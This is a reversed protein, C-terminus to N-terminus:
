KNKMLEMLQEIKENQQQIIKKLENIQLQQEYNAKYNYTVMEDTLIANNERLAEPLSSPDLEMLGKDTKDDFSGPLKAIPPFLIIEDTVMRDTFAAAGQNFLDDYYVDNWAQGNAGLNGGKHSGPLFNGNEMFINNGHYFFIRNATNDYGMSAGFAGNDFYSIQALSSAAAKISLTANATSSEINATVASATQKVQFNGRVDLTVDPATVGIGIKATSLAMDTGYITSGINLQNSGTSVPASAYRGILINSTGSTLNYGAYFGLAINNNGTTLDGLGFAGFATNATGSTLNYLARYGTAANQFGTVSGYLAGSGVACNGLGETNNLLAEMGIATNEDGTTNGTLSSAGVAVNKEGTSNSAMAIDGIATNYQGTNSSTSLSGNLALFGIATNYTERGTTRNDARYMAQLGIATTRSNAKNNYLAGQGIATNYTGTTNNLLASEGLAVNDSGSTNWIMSSAGIATNRKGTNNAPTSGGRLAYSGLATNYTYSGGSNDANGMADYGIATNMSNSVNTGLADQGIAINYSGTTNNALANKGVGINSSGWTNSLLSSAGVATNDDGVTNSTLAVDGIATNYQGSNASATTSGKLAEYGLATNYTDRGTTRDDAYYMAQYGIATQRSNAVNSKLVSFGLGTNNNGETNNNLASYGMAMNNSGSSNTYLAFAGLAVNYIGTNNLSPLTGVLTNMGIATNYSSQPSLDDNYYRMSSYGMAVNGNKAVSTQLAHTGIAINYSGGINDELASNGVAVNNNSSYDDKKGANEGLFVSGGSNLVEIRASDLNFFETGATYIRIMDEDDYYEVHIRTDGDLDSLTDINKNSGYINIWGALSSSYFWLGKTDTDFVILGNAPSDIAVREATTMRPILLGKSTSTIDLAASEDAATGSNNIAVQAFSFSSFILACAM